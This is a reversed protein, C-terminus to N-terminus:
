FLIDCNPLAAKLRAKEADPIPNGKLYLRRLNIALGSLDSPLATLQNGNLRLWKLSSQKGISAPLTTLKNRDANLYELKPCNGLEEPLQTLANDNVYLHALNQLSGVSPTLSTLGIRGLDMWKLAPLTGIGEPLSAITNQRLSLRELNKLKLIDDPFAKQSTAYLNLYRVSDPAKLAEEISTVKKGIDPKKWFQDSPACGFGSLFLAIIVLGHKM